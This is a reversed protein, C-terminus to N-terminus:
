EAGDVRGFGVQLPQAGAKKERGVDPGAANSRPRCSDSRILGARMDALLADQNKYRLSGLDATDRTEWGAQPVGIRFDAACCTKFVQAVM